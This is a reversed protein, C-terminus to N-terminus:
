WSILGTQRGEGSKRSLEAVEKDSRCKRARLRTEDMEDRSLADEFGGGGEGRIYIYRYKYGGMIVVIDDGSAAPWFSEKWYRTEKPGSALQM